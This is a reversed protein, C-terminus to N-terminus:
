VEIVGGRQLMTGLTSQSRHIDVPQAKDIELAAQVFATNKHRSVCVSIETDVSEGSHEHRHISRLRNSTTTWSIDETMANRKPSSLPRIGQGMMNQTAQPEQDLSPRMLERLQSMRTKKSCLVPKESQLPRELSHNFLKESDIQAEHALHTDCM